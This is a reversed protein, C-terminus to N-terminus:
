PGGWGRQELGGAVRHSRRQAAHGVHELRDQVPQIGGFSVGAPLSKLNIPMGDLMVRFNVIPQNSANVTVSAIQYSVTQLGAPLEPNNPTNYVTAHKPAVPQIATPGHCLICAADDTHTGYHAAFNVAGAPPVTGDHCTGCARRSIRTTWATQDAAPRNAPQTIRQNNHCTRCNTIDQPYTVHSYDHSSATYGTAAAHLKHIMTSLDLPVWNTDTSAYTDYMGPNHCYGCANVDFRRDGHFYLVKARASVDEAHCAGCSEGTVVQNALVAQLTPLSAPVFDKVVNLFVGSDRGIIVLRHM